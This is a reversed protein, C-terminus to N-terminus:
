TPLRGRVEARSVPAPRTAKSCCTAARCSITTRDPLVMRGLQDARSCSPPSATSRCASAEASEVCGAQVQLREHRLIVHDVEASEPDLVDFLPTGVNSFPRCHYPRMRTPMAFKADSDTAITRGM